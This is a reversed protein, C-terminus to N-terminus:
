TQFIVVRNGIAHCIQTTVDGLNAIQKRSKLPIQILAFYSNTLDTIGVLLLRAIIRPKETEPSPVAL